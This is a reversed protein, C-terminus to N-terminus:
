SYIVQMTTYITIFTILYQGNKCIFSCLFMCRKDFLKGKFVYVCKDQRTASPEDEGWENDLASTYRTKDLWHWGSKYDPAHSSPDDKYLSIWYQRYKYRTLFSCFMHCKDICNNCQCCVQMDMTHSCHGLILPRLLHLKLSAIDYSFGAQWLITYREYIYM